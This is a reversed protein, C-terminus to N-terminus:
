RGASPLTSAVRGTVGGGARPDRGGGVVGGAPERDGRELGGSFGGGDVGAGGPPDVHEGPQGRLRRVAAADGAPGASRHRGAASARIQIGDDPRPYDVQAGAALPLNETLMTVGGTPTSSTSIATAPRARRCRPLEGPKGGDGAALRRWIRTKAPDAGRRCGSAARVGCGTGCWRRVGAPRNSLLYRSWSDSLSFAVLCCTSSMPTHIRYWTGGM